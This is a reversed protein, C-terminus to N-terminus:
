LRDGAPKSDQKRTPQAGGQPALQRLQQLRMRHMREFRRRQDSDLVRRIEENALKLEDRIEPGVRESIKKVRNQRKRLIGSIRDRQEESLNLGRSIRELFEVRSKAVREFSKKVPARDKAVPRAEVTPATPPPVPAPAPAPLNSTAIGAQAPTPNSKYVHSVVLGGTIVGCAFIALAALIANWYKVM